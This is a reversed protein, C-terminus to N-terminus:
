NPTATNLIFMMTPIVVQFDLYYQRPVLELVEFQIPVSYQYQILLPM